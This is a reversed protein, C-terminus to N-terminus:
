HDINNIKPCFADFWYYKIYSFIVLLDTDGINTDEGYMQGIISSREAVNSFSNLPWDVIHM